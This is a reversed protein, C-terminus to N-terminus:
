TTVCSTAPGSCTIQTFTILLSPRKNIVSVLLWISFQLKKICNPSNRDSPNIEVNYETTLRQLPMLLPRTNGVGEHTM